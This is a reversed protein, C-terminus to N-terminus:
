PVYDFAEFQIVNLTALGGVKSTTESTLNIEEKHPSVAFHTVLIQKKNKDFHTQMESIVLTM